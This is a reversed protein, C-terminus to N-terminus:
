EPLVLDRLADDISVPRRVPPVGAAATVDARTPFAIAVEGAAVSAARFEAQRALGPYFSEARAAAQGYWDRAADVNGRCEAVTARGNMATVMFLTLDLTGDDGTLVEAFLGDARTLYQDRDEATLVQQPDPPIGVPGQDPPTAAGLALGTEISRMLQDAARLRAVSALQGIDSYERAVDEFSGPLQAAFLAAWAESQQSSRHQRFRDVGLYTCIALLGVLLWTPGKTKLWDVFDENLRGETLDTQHVEKLRDRDM